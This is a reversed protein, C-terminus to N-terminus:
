IEIKPRLPAKANLLKKDVEDKKSQILQSAGKCEHKELQICSPCFSKQCGNCTLPVMGKKRCHSCRPM